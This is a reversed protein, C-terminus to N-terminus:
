LSSARKVLTIQLVQREMTPLAHKKRLSKKLKLHWWGRGFPVDLDTTSATTWVIQCEVQEEREREIKRSGRRKPRARSFNCEVFRRRPSFIFVFGAASQAARRKPLRREVTRRVPELDFGKVFKSSLFLARLSLFCFFRVFSRSSNIQRYARKVAKKDALISVPRSSWRASFHFTFRTLLTSPPTASTVTFISRYERFGVYACLLSCFEFLFFRCDDCIQCRHGTATFGEEM